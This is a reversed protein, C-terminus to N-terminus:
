SFSPPARRLFFSCSFYPILSYDCSNVYYETEPLNIKKEYLVEFDFVSFHFNCLHCDLTKKHFHPTADVCIHQHHDLVHVSEAAYPFLLTLSLVTAFFAKSVRHRFCKM